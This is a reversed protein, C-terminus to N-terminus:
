ASPTGCMDLLPMVINQPPLPRFTNRPPSPRRYPRRSLKPIYPQQNCSSAVLVLDPLFLDPSIRCMPEDDYYLASERRKRLQQDMRHVSSRNQVDLPTMACPTISGAPRLNAPKSFSTGYSPCEQILNSKPELNGPKSFASGYLPSLPCENMM